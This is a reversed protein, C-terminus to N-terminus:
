EFDMLTKYVDQAQKYTEKLSENEIICDAKLKKKEDDWQNEMRSRVAEPELGDRKIVRELRLQKPATVLIVFDCFQDGGTEFLIATEKIVWPAKRNESKFIEFADAVAPHVIANLDALALPDNFVIDALKKRNLEGHPHFVKEGFRQSVAEKLRSNLLKKGVEDAKFCPIGQDQFWKLLTSKGSGIGGTLGIVKM